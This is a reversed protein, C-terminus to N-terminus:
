HKKEKATKQTPGGSWPGNLHAEKYSRTHKRQQWFTETPLAKKGIWKKLPTGQRCPFYHHFPFASGSPRSPILESSVIGAFLLSPQLLAWYVWHFGLNWTIGLVAILTGTRRVTSAKGAVWGRPLDEDTSPKVLRWLATNVHSPLASAILASCKNASCPLSCSPWNWNEKELM